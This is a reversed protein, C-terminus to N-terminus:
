ARRAAVFEALDITLAFVNRDNAIQKLNDLQTMERRGDRGGFQGGVIASFISGPAASKAEALAKCTKEGARRGRGQGKRTQVPKPRPLLFVLNDLFVPLSVHDRARRVAHYSVRRLGDQGCLAPRDPRSGRHAYGAARAPAPHGHLTPHPYPVTPRASECTPPARISENLSPIPIPIATTAPSTTSPATALQRDPGQHGSKREAAIANKSNGGIPPRM